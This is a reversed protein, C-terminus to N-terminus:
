PTVEDPLVAAHVCGPTILFQKAVIEAAEHDTAGLAVVDAYAHRVHARSIIQSM